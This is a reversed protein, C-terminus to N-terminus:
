SIVIRNRMGNWKLIASARLAFADNGFVLESLDLGMQKRLLFKAKNLIYTKPNTKPVDLSTAKVIQISYM